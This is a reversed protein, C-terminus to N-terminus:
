PVKGETKPPQLLAMAAVLRRLFFDSVHETVWDLVLHIDMLPVEHVFPNYATTIDGLPSRTSLTETLIRRRMDHDTLIDQVRQLDPIIGVLQDLLGYSMFLVRTEGDMTITVRPSPPNRDMKERDTKVDKM